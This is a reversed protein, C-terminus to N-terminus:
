CTGAISSDRQGKTSEHAESATTRNTDSATSRFFGKLSQQGRSSDFAAPANIGSKQRKLFRTGSIASAPRKREPSGVPSATAKSTMTAQSSISPTGTDVQASFSASANSYDAENKSSQIALNSPEDAPKATSTPRLVPKRSFMDKISQRKTFEPLLKASFAPSSRSDYERIRGGDQFVGCPNMLDKIHRRAGDINVLDPM